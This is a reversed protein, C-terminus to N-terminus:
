RLNEILQRAEGRCLESAQALLRAASIRIHHPVREEVLMHDDGDLADRMSRSPPRVTLRAVPPHPVDILRGKSDLV